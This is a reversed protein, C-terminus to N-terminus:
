ALIRRAVQEAVDEVFPLLSPLQDDRGAFEEHEDLPV